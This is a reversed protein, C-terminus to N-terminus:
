QCIIQNINPYINNKNSGKVITSKSLSRCISEITCDRETQGTIYENNGISPINIYDLNDDENVVTKNASISIDNIIGCSSHQGINIIADCENILSVIDSLSIKKLIPIISSRNDLINLEQKIQDIFNNIEKSAQNQDTVNLALALCYDDSNRYNMLYSKLIKSINNTDGHDGVYCFKFSNKFKTPLQINKIEDIASFYSFQYTRDLGYHNKLINYSNNNDVLIKNFEKLQKPIYSKGYIHKFIPIAINNNTNNICCLQDIHGHQIIMDYPGSLDKSELEILHNEINNKEISNDYIPRITLDHERLISEIILQSNNALLSTSRYPGIYLIKM